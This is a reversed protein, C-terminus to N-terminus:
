LERDGGALSDRLIDPYEFTVSLLTFFVSLAVPTLVLLIGTLRSLRVDNM